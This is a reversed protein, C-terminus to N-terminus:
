KLPGLHEFATSNVMDKFATWNDEVLADVPYPKGAKTLM